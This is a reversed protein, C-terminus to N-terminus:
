ESVGQAPADVRMGGAVFPVLRRLTAEPDSPDCVGHTLDPLKDSLAMTHAMAGVMFLLRWVIEERGLHPLARGLAASFRRLVTEFQDTFMQLIRADPDSLTHGFLRMFTAARPDLSARLPPGVFAEVVQEVPPAADGAAVEIRDLLMLRERNLPELRRAFVQEILGDKSGFHYNVAALNVGANATIHRLSTTFGEEAFLEEAADLIREKTSVESV